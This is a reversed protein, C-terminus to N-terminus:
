QLAEAIGGLAKLAGVRLSVGHATGLEPETPNIRILPHGYKRSLQQGFERVTPIRSGAGLEIIVLSETEALWDDLRARQIQRRTSIWDLDGFMMINPRALASCRPCQPLPSVLRCTTTDVVPHVDDAAWIREACLATCQLHHISGHCEMIRTNDFGTKQFLGDVNSTFVFAGRSMSQAWNLLMRYGEHPQTRRYLDLRHGYFGWALEPADAFTQPSAVDEFALGSRSLAPYARWFGNTGRFDPLGADVGMGAGATILLGDAARILDACESASTITM